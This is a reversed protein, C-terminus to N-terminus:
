ILVCKRVRSTMKILPLSFEENKELSTDLRKDFDEKKIKLDLKNMIDGIVFMGWSSIDIKTM